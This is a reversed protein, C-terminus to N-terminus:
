EHLCPEYHIKLKSPESQYTNQYMVLNYFAVFGIFYLIKLSSYVFIFSPIPIEGSFIKIVPIYSWPAYISVKQSFRFIHLHKYTAM